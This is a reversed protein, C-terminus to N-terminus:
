TVATVYNNATAQGLLSASSLAINPNGTDLLTLMNASSPNPGSGMRVHVDHQVPPRCQSGIAPFRRALRRALPSRHFVAAATPDAGCDPLSSRRRGAADPQRESRRCLRNEDPQRPRKRRQARRRQGLLDDLAAGAGFTGYFQGEERLTEQRYIPRGPSTKMFIIAPSLIMVPTSSRSRPITSRRPALSARFM